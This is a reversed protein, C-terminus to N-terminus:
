RPITLQPCFIDAHMDSASLTFMHSRCRLNATQFIIENERIVGHVVANSRCPPFQATIQDDKPVVILAIFDNPEGIIAPIRVLERLLRRLGATLVDYKAAHM